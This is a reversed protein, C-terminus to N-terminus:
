RPQILQRIRQRSLGAARGIAALSIGEAHAAFIAGRLKARAEARRRDAEELERAADAVADLLRPVDNM